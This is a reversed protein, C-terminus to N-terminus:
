PQPEWASVRWGRTTKRVTALYVRYRAGAPDARGHTYGHEYTVVVARRAATLTATIVRGASAPRQGSLRAEDASYRASRRLDAALPGAALAGLQRQQRAITRWSWNIWRAAFARLTAIAARNRRTPSTSPPAADLAPKTGITDGDAQAPPPGGRGHSGSTYPDHISCGGLVLVVVAACACGTLRRTSM